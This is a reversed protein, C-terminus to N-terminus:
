RHVCVCVCVCVRVCVYMCVGKLSGTYFVSRDVEIRTEGAATHLSVIADNGLVHADPRLTVELDSYHPNTHSTFISGNRTWGAVRM